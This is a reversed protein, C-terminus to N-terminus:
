PHQHHLEKTRKRQKGTLITIRMTIWMGSIAPALICLLVGFLDPGSISEPPGRRLNKKKCSNPELPAVFSAVFFVKCIYIYFTNRVNRNQGQQAGSPHSYVISGHWSHSGGQPINRMLWLNLRHRSQEAEFPLSAMQPSTGSKKSYRRMWVKVFVVYKVHTSLGGGCRRPGM